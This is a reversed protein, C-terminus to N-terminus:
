RAALVTGASAFGGGLARVLAVDLSFARAELDAVLRRRQLVNDEVILVSQYNALGGKFRLQAVKYAEEEAALAARAEALRTTLAHASAAADAVDQLARTVAGDYQAVALAYDAEAGRLNAKRAGGDFIPLSIAPGIQGIDSGAALLNSLGLSQFGIFAALNINPYFQAHAVGIRKGAAEARWRAAVVEPKRGVLDAALQAPLGFAALRAPPPPTIADGRDPGAGLLAALAHRTIAISEDIAALDGRAAPVGAEASKLEARTDLGANVRQDVLKFTAARVKIAAVAVDRAAFQQALQAYTSAVATSLMVEAGARDAAAARAEFGAAAAAARNKGWFDLEWAFDLTARGVDNYGKPVFEAPIGNNYSQKNLAVSANAGVTPLRAADAQRELAQARHLRAEAAAVDPSGVLAEAILADLQPDGYARWWDAGPWQGAPAAVGALATATVPKPRLAADASPTACASLALMVGSALVAFLCRHTM